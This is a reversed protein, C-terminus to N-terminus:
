RPTLLFGHWETTLSLSVAGVILGVNNIANAAALRQRSGADSLTNLDAMAGNLWRVAVQTAGGEKYSWGVVVGQDNVGLAERNSGLETLRSPVGGSKCLFAHQGSLTGVM